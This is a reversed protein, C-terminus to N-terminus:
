LAPRSVVGYQHYAPLGVLLSMSGGLGNGVIHTIICDVYNEGDVHIYVIM